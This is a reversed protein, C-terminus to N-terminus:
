EIMQNLVLIESKNSKVENKLTLIEYKDDIDKKIEIIRSEGREKKSLENVATLIEVINFEKIM